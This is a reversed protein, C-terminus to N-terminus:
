NLTLNQRLNHLCIQYQFFFCSLLLSGSIEGCEREGLFSNKLSQTQDKRLTIQVDARATVFLLRLTMGKNQLNRNGNIRCPFFILESKKHNEKISSPKPKNEKLSIPGADETGAAYPTCRILQQVCHFCFLPFISYSTNNLYLSIEVNIAM